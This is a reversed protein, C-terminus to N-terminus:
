PKFRYECMDPTEWGEGGEGRFRFELRRGDIVGDARIYRVPTASHNAKRCMEATDYLARVLPIGASYDPVWVEDPMPPADPRRRFREAPQATVPPLAPEWREWKGAATLYDLRGELQWGIREHLEALTM